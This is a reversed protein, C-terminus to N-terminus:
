PEGGRKKHVEQKEVIYKKIEELVLSVTKQIEVVTEQMQNTGFGKPELFLHKFTADIQNIQRVYGLFVVDVQMLANLSGRVNQLPNKYFSTLLLSAVGVAGAAWTTISKEGGNLALILSGLLAVVGIVFIVVHMGMSIWFAWRAQSMLQGFHERVETDANALLNTYLDLAKTRESLLIQAATQGGLDTLLENARKSIQIDPNGQAERLANAARERDIRRLADLMVEKDKEPKLAEPVLRKISEEGGVMSKLARAAKLQIAADEDEVAKLLAEKAAEKEKLDILGDLCYRRITPDPDKMLLEALHATVIKKELFSTLTQICEWRTDWPTYKDAAIEVLVPIFDKEIDSPLPEMKLDTRTRLARAAAWWEDQSQQNQLMALLGDEYELLGHVVLLRMATAKPLAEPDSEAAAIIETEPFPKFNAGNILAFYRTWPDPEGHPSMLKKVRDQGDQCGLQALASIAWSRQWQNPKKRDLWNLIYNNIDERKPEEMDRIKSLIDNRQKALNGDWEKDEKLLLNIMPQLDNSLEISM